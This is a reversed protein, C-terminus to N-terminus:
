SCAKLACLADPLAPLLSGPEAREKGQFLEVPMKMKRHLHQALVFSRWAARWESCRALREWKALSAKSFTRHSKKKKLTKWSSKEQNNFSDKKTKKCLSRGSRNWWGSMREPCSDLKRRELSEQFADPATQSKHGENRLELWALSFGEDAWPQPCVKAQRNHRGSSSSRFFGWKALATWPM